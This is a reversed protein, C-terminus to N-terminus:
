KSQLWCQRSRLLSTRSRIACGKSPGNNRYLTQLLATTFSCTGLMFRMKKPTQNQFCVCDPWYSRVDFAEPFTNADDDLFILNDEPGPQEENEAASTLSQLDDLTWDKFPHEDYDIIKFNSVQKLNEIHEKDIISENHALIKFILSIYIFLIFNAM